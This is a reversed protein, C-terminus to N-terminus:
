FTPNPRRHPAKSLELLKHDGSGWPKPTPSPTSVRTFIRNQTGCSAMRGADKDGDRSAEVLIAMALNEARRNMSPPLAVMIDMSKSLMLGALFTEYLDSQFMYEAVSVARMLRSLAQVPLTTDGVSLADDIWSHPVLLRVQSSLDGFVEQAAVPSREDVSEHEVTECIVVAIKKGNIAQIATKAIHRM